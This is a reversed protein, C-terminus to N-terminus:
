KRQNQEANAEPILSMNDSKSVLAKVWCDMKSAMIERKLYRGCM